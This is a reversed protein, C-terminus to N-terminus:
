SKPNESACQECPASCPPFHKAQDKNQRKEYEEDLWEIYSRTAINIDRQSTAFTIVGADSTENPRWIMIFPFLRGGITIFLKSLLLALLKSMTGKGM